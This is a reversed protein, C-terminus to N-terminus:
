SAWSVMSGLTVMGTISLWGVFVLGLHAQVVREAGNKENMLPSYRKCRVKPKARPMMVCECDDGNKEEEMRQKRYEMIWKNVREELVTLPLAGNELVAMHFEQVDFLDGLEKEARERLKKIRLEGVKYTTAQGPWTIYRDVEVKIGEESEATHLIFYDVAQDRTWNYYHLGSDVVLRAARFLESEYHGMELPLGPQDKFLRSLHPEIRQHIINEYEAIIDDETDFFMDDRKKLEQFYERITMNHHGQKHMIAHMKAQVRAVEAVGLDHIDQPTMNLSLYWNLCAQYFDAGGELAGVGASPRTNKMYVNELYDKLERFAQMVGEVAALGRKMVSEIVAEKDPLTLYTENLYKIFPTYYISETVSVNLIEDIQDPIRDISRINSTRGLRIAEDFSIKYEKFLRPVDYLKSIYNEFDGISLFSLSDVFHHPNRQLGELWSMPTLYSWRSWDKGKIYAQLMDQMITYDMQDKESLNVKSINLLRDLFYQAYSTRDDILELGFQELRDDQRFDGIGREFKRWAHFERELYKLETHEDGQAIHLCCAVVLLVQMTNMTSSRPCDSLKLDCYIPLGKLIIYINFTNFTGFNSHKDDCSVCDGDGFPR